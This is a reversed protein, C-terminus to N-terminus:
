KPNSAPDKLDRLMAELAVGPCIAGRIYDVLGTAVGRIRKEIQPERCRGDPEFVEQVRAVSVLGPLVLAGVHSCVSRLHELSKIAGIEGAAVGLLALPKDRLASPFGMNEIALKVISSFSGHYEPTAIIVGTASQLAERMAAATASNDTQGPFPFLEEGPDVEGVEVAPDKGLEDHVLALAKRTYNGPRVSGCLTIIRIAM